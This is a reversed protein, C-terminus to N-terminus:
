AEILAKGLAEYNIFDLLNLAGDFDVDYKLKYNFYWGDDLEHLTFDKVTPYYYLWSDQWDDEGVEGLLARAAQPYKAALKKYNDFVEEQYNM